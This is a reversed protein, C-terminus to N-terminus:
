EYGSKSLQPQKTNVEQMPVEGQRVEAEDVGVGAKEADGGWGADQDDGEAGHGLPAGLVDVTSAVSAFRMTSAAGGAPHAVVFSSGAGASSFLTDSARGGDASRHDVARLNLIFRSILISTISKTSHSLADRLLLGSFSGGIRADHSAKGLRYTNAWTVAIVM